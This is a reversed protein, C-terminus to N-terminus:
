DELRGQRRAKIQSTRRKADLRREKSAKTARTPRRPKEVHLATAIREALRKRAADRNRVQSREDSAVVRVTPGLKELLRARQRPGLSPSNAVDFVLEVRTNSTNAHQGGPGGSGTFRWVLEEDPISCSSSVRLM